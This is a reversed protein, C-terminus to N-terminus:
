TRSLIRRRRHSIHDVRRAEAGRDVQLFPVIRRVNALWSAFCGAVCPFHTILRPVVDDDDDPCWTVACYTRHSAAESPIGHVLQVAKPMSHRMGWGLRLFVCVALALSASLYPWVVESTLTYHQRSPLSRPSLSSREGALVETSGRSFDATYLEWSPVGEVM